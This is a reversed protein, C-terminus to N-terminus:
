AMGARPQLSNQAKHAKLWQWLGAIALLLFVAYLGSTPALDRTWFLWIALVDVAIWYIWSEIRRLVM